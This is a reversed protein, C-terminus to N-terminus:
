NERQKENEEIEKEKINKMIKIDDNNLSSILSCTKSLHNLAKREKYLLKTKKKKLINEKQPKRIHNIIPMFVNERQVKNYISSDLDIAINMYNIAKDKDGKLIAVQALYYYSGAEVDEGRISEKFSKEAEELDGAILAIQGLSLKANYLLSNIQAAKQYFEKARQFDNVMTYVMGLNYYLDYNGPNYRLANMYVNIAEKYRENSYLIEGLLNTAEYYEPKKNLIDQLVGIADESRRDKNLLNAIKYNIKIDKNNLETARIYEDVAISYKEEKEYILALTKHGIYSEPYKNILKFLYDKAQETNGANLAIKALIINLIEPFDIKRKYEIILIIIPMIISLIYILIRFFLNLHINFILELFNIVIGLFELGLVYVYSTDNKKIFRGFVTIFIAFALLNFIIKEIM